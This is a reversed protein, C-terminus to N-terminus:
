AAGLQSGPCRQDSVNSAMCTKVALFDQTLLVGTFTAWAPDAGQSTRQETGQGSKHARPETKSWPM